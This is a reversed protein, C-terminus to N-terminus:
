LAAMEEEIATVMTEPHPLVRADAIIGITVQGAYSFISVGLGLRTAQPVWFMVRSIKVGGLHLAERPGPVNTLVLSSKKAFFSAGLEELDIPLRGLLRLLDMGVFAEPSSKLEDMRRKVEHLRLAPDQMGVPLALIVLGFRNGLLDPAIARRLNVPVMARVNGVPEGAAMLEQGLAGTVVSVLVDNVTASAARAIRKVDDLPIPRSWAVNKRAGLEHKLITQPDRPLTVMRALAGVRRLPGTRRAGRTRPASRKTIPAEDCLALLRELLAFGDALAHHVRFLIATAEGPRDIVLARWLPRSGDLLTSAERSVLQRLARDGRPIKVHVLHKGVDFTPDPELAPLALPIGKDVVRARFRPPLGRTEVISLLRAIDLTGELEVLANVIMPNTASEMHLWATDEGGLRM